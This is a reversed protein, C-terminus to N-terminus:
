HTGHIWVDMSSTPDTPTVVIPIGPTPPVPTPDPPTPKDPGYPDNPSNPDDPDPAPDPTHTPKDPDEPDLPNNPPTNPNPTEPEPTKNPDENFGPTPNTPPNSPPYYSLDGYPNPNVPVDSPRSPTSPNTPDIPAGPNSPDVPTIPTGPAVPTSPNAPDVPGPRSGPIINMPNNPDNLYPNHISSPSFPNNQPNNKVPNSHSQPNTPSTPNTVDTPDTQNVYNYDIPSIDILPETIPYLTVPYNEPHNYDYNSYTDIPDLPYNYVTGGPYIQFGSKCIPNADYELTWVQGQAHIKLFCIVMYDPTQWKQINAENCEEGSGIFVSSSPVALTFHWRQAQRNYLGEELVNHPNRNFGYTEESGVFTRNRDNLYLINAHGTPFRDSPSRLRRNTTENYNTGDPRYQALNNFGEVYQKATVTSTNEAVTYNRREAENLWDVYLNFDQVRSGEDVDWDFDNVLSFENNVKYYVDCPTYENNRLNLLYYKPRVQVMYTLKNDQFYNAEPNYNEGYYNGITELDMYINYGARMAQNRLEKVPNLRPTLPLRFVRRSGSRGGRVDYLNGYTDLWQTRDSITEWRVDKIDAVVHKPSNYYVSEVINPILWTGDGKSHKFLNAFQYDAVDEMCLGGISGVVDIKQTKYASHRAAKEESSRLKNTTGDSENFFIDYAYPPVPPNIATSVFQTKVSAGEVNGLVCYFRFYEDDPSIVNLDIYSNKEILTGTPSIVNVPFNVYRHATWERTNMPSTFGKGRTTTTDGIGNMNPQQAFNGTFPYYIEFARDVNIFVGTSKVVRDGLPLAIDTNASHRKDNYCPKWCRLDGVAYHHIPNNHDANGAALSVVHHPDTCALVKAKVPHCLSTCEHYNLEHTCLNPEHFTVGIYSNGCGEEFNFYVPIKETTDNTFEFSTDIYHVGQYELYNDCSHGFNDVYGAITEGPNVDFVKRYGKISFDIGSTDTMYIDPDDIITEKLQTVSMTVFYDILREDPIDGNFYKEQYDKMDSFHACVDSFYWTGIYEPNLKTNFTYTGPEVDINIWGNSLVLDGKEYGNSTSINVHYISDGLIQFSPLLDPQKYNKLTGQGEVFPETEVLKVPKVDFGSIEVTFMGPHMCESDATYYLSAMWSTDNKLDASGNISTRVDCFHENDNSSLYFHGHQSCAGNYDIHITKGSAVKDTILYDEARQQIEKVARNVRCRETCRHANSGGFHEIHDEVEIYCDETHETIPTNCNLTSYICGEGPCAGDILHADKQRMAIGNTRKDYKDDNCLVVAFEASVPDHIVINNIKNDNPSYPVSDITYTGAGNCEFIYRENATAKNAGNNRQYFDRKYKLSLFGTDKEGNPTTDIIDLSKFIHHSNAKGQNFKTQKSGGLAFNSTPYNYWYNDPVPNNSHYTDRLKRVAKEFPDQSEKYIFPLHQASIYKNSLDTYTGKYGGYTISTNDAGNAKSWCTLKDGNQWWFDDNTKEENFLIEGVEITGGEDTSNFHKAGFNASTSQCQQSYFFPIQFGESTNLIVFDSIVTAGVPDAASLKDIEPNVWTNVVNAVKTVRIAGESFSKSKSCNGIWGREGEQCGPMASSFLLRGSGSTYTKASFTRSCLNPDFHQTDGGSLFSDETDLKYDDIRWVECNNIDFYNFEGITAVLNYVWTHGDPHEDNIEHTCCSAGYKCTAGHKPHTIHGEEDQEPGHCGDSCATNEEWCNSVNATYVYKRTTEPNFGAEETADFDVRFDVAGIGLYLDRTTPTGAMAEFEENGVNMTKLESYWAQKKEHDLNTYYPVDAKRKFTISRRIVPSFVFGSQWDSVPYPKPNDKDPLVSYGMFTGKGNMARVKDLEPPGFVDDNQKFIPTKIEASYDYNVTTKSGKVDNIEIQEDKFEIDIFQTMLKEIMCNKIKFTDTEKVGDKYLRDTATFETEGCGNQLDAILDFEIKITTGNDEEIHLNHGGCSALENWGPLNADMINGSTAGPYDSSKQITITVPLKQADNWNEVQSSGDFQMRHILKCLKQIEVSPENWDCDVSFQDNNFKLGREEILKDSLRAPFRLSIKQNCEATQGEDIIINESSVSANIKFNPKADSGQQKKVTGDAGLYTVGTIIIGDGPYQKNDNVLINNGIHVPKYICIHRRNEGFNSKAFDNRATYYTPETSHTTFYYDQFVEWYVSYEPAYVKTNSIAGGMESSTWNSSDFVRINAVPGQSLHKLSDRFFITSGGGTVNDYVGDGYHSLGEMGYDMATVYKQSLDWRTVEYYGNTTAELCCPAFEIYLVKDKENKEKFDWQTNGNNTVWMKLDAVLEGANAGLYTNSGDWGPNILLLAISLLYLNANVGNIADDPFQKAITSMCDNLAKSGNVFTDHGNVTSLHRFLGGFEKRLQNVAGAGGPMEIIGEASSSGGSSGCFNSYFYDIAANINGVNWYPINSGSENAVQANNMKLFKYVPNNTSALNSFGTSAGECYVLRGNPNAGPANLNPSNITQFVSCNPNSIGDFATSQTFFVVNSQIDYRAASEVGNVQAVGDWNMPDYLAGSSQGSLWEKGVAAVTKAFLYLQCTSPLVYGTTGMAYGVSGDKTNTTETADWFSNRHASEVAVRVMMGTNKSVTTATSKPQFNNVAIEQVNAASVKEQLYNLPLLYIVMILTLLFSVIRKM